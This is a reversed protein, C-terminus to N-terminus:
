SIKKVIGKEADVEVLDGDKFVKTAIKTGIICPKKLERSVIAAHCTIGGEDTIFAASKKILQVFDPTTMATVLIDGENFKAFEARNRIVKVTGTVKGTFATRGKIESANGVSLEALAFGRKKLYGGVPEFIIGESTLLFGQARKELETQNFEVDNELYNLIEEYSIYKSLALPLNAEKTCLEAVQRSLYDVQPGIKEIVSRTEIAQDVYKQYKSLQLHNEMQIPFWLMVIYRPGLKVNQEIVEGFSAALEYHSYFTLAKTKIKTLMKEAYDVQREVVRCEEQLWKPNKDIKKLILRRMGDIHESPSRYVSITNNQGEFIVETYRWNFQKKFEETFVRHWVKAYIMGWDRTISKEFVLKQTM